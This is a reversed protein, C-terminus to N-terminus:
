VQLGKSRLFAAKSPERGLFDRLMDIADWSGGRALIKERYEAGVAPDLVKGDGFKSAFMDECFVESWLYGYYSSQYGGAIHGFGAAFNTGPTPLMGAIRQSVTAFVAATDVERSAHV